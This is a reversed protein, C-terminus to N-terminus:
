CEQHDQAYAGGRKHGHEYYIYAGPILSDFVSTKRMHGDDFSYLRGPLIRIWIGTDDKVPSNM